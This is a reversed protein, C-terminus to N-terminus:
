IEETWINEEVGETYTFFIYKTEYNSIHSVKDKFYCLPVLPFALEIPISLHSYITNNM